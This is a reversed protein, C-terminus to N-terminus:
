AQNYLCGIHEIPIIIFKYTKIQFNSIYLAAKNHCYLIDDELIKKGFNRDVVKNSYAVLFPLYLNRQAKRNLQQREAELEELKRQIEPTRTSKTLSEIRSKIEESIKAINQPSVEWNTVVYIGGNTKKVKNGTIDIEGQEPLAAINKLFIFNPHPIVTTGDYYGRVNIYDVAYYNYTEDEFCFYQCGKTTSSIPSEITHHFILTDGVKCKEWGYIGTPEEHPRYQDTGKMHEGIQVIEGCEMNRSNHISDVPMFFPSGNSVKEKASRQEKKNIKVLFLHPMIEYKM